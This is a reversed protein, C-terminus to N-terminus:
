LSSQYNNVYSKYNDLVTKINGSAVVEGNYLHLADNCLISLLDLNHSALVLTGGNESFEELYKRCKNQFIADGVAIVEDLLLIDMDAHVLISFALRAIMGASYTRLPLKIAEDLESFEVIKVLRKKITDIRVGLISANLYINEVGSLESHFGAGLELMAGIRGTTEIYGETPQITGLLLNLLTSKGAGNHGILGLSKGRKVSFSVNKLSWNRALNTKPKVLGNIAWEKIGLVETSRFSKSVNRADLIPM